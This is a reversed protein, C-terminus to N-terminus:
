GSDGPEPEDLRGKEGRGKVGDEGIMEVNRGSTLCRACVPEVVHQPDLGGQASKTAARGGPAFENALKNALRRNKTYGCVRVPPSREQEGGAADRM